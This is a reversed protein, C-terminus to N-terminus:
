KLVYHLIRINNEKIWAMIIRKIEENIVLENFRIPKNFKEKAQVLLFESPPIEIELTAMRKDNLKVSFISRRRSICKDIYSFVCNHMEEGEEYLTEGNTIETITWTREDIIQMFEKIATKGWEKKKMGDINEQTYNIDGHWEVNLRFLEEWTMNEFDINNNNIIYDFIDMIVDEHIEYRGKRSIFKIFDLIAQNDLHEVFICLFFELSLDLGNASKVKWYYELLDMYGSQGFTVSDPEIWDCTMFQKVEPKTFYDKNKAFFSEGSLIDTLWKDALDGIIRERPNNNIYGDARYDDYSFFLSFPIANPFNLKLYSYFDKIIEKHLRWNDRFYAFKDEYERLKNSKIAKEEAHSRLKSIKGWFPHNINFDKPSLKLLVMLTGTKM